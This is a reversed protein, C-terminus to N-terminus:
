LGGLLLLERRITIEVYRSLFDIRAKDPTSYKWLYDCHRPGTGRVPRGAGGSLRTVALYQCLDPATRWPYRGEFIRTMFADVRRERSVASTARIRSERLRQARLRAATGIDGPDESDSDIDGPDISGTELRIKMEKANKAHTKWFTWTAFQAWSRSGHWEYVKGPRISVACTAAVEAFIEAPDAGHDKEILDSMNWLRTFQYSIVPLAELFYTEANARSPNVMYANRAIKFREFKFRRLKGDEDTMYPLLAARCRNLRRKPNPTSREFLPSGASRM